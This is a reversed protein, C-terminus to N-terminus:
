HTKESSVHALDDRGLYQIGLERALYDVLSNCMKIRDHEAVVGNPEFNTFVWADVLEELPTGYQLAISATLALTALLGRVVPDGHKTRIFIEALRGDPYTATHVHLPLGAVNAHVSGISRRRNPLRERVGRPLTTPVVAREDTM